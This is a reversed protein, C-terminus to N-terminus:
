RDDLRDVVRRQVDALACEVRVRVFHQPQREPRRAHKGVSDHQGLDIRPEAFRPPTIILRQVHHPNPM